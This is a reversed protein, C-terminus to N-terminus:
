EAKLKPMGVSSVAQFAHEKEVSIIENSISAEQYGFLEIQKIIAQRHKESSTGLSATLASLLNLALDSRVALRKCTNELLEIRTLLENNTM